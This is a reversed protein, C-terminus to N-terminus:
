KENALIVRIRGGESEPKDYYATYRYNGNIAEDLTIRMVNYGADIKYVLVSDSLKYQTDAVTITTHTLDSVSSYSRMEKIAEINGSSGIYIQVPIRSTVQERGSYQMSVGAVDITFDHAADTNSKKSTVIGYSYADGTVDNLIIDTIEGASNKAYYLVKSASINMSDLRQLYIRKYTSIDYLNSVVTDIIKVNESVKSSGITYNSSSVTGYLGGSGGTISTVSAEGNAFSVRCVKGLYYSADSKVEYENEVGDTGVLKVYYGSYEQGLNNTFTKTGYDTVYGIKTTETNSDGSVVGAIDGNRGLLITVTDGIKINGSSSLANFAEVSEINYEKGSIKVSSPADKSPSASEYIGTVKDTYALVMNLDSSYYVIDNVLIDSSSVKNGDRMIQTTSNVNFQQIWSSSTVKIPGEMSGKEYSVYDVVAGNMKVYLIDGMEMDAKVAGYTSQTTDRYCTTTDKVDIQKFTGNQYCIVANDLLSYIVYRDLNNTGASNVSTQILVAYEVSGNSNKFLKITDGKNAKEAITAYTYTQTKFYATTNENIDYIQNDLVLDKGIINTVTHTEVSQEQPTFAVFDDGNKVVIDGRRGVYDNDFNDNIEFTGATTYIKDTGLSSDEEHSAIITVGETIKCDFIGILKDSDSVANKLKTNLTNYVLRAVQGRTLPQGQFSDVYKTLELNQAMGIQGYPWSVGFDEDTYGLARLLMTLAEEYSVTDYPKFTGDIYGECLGASVAAQVYPAFWDNYKVDKFPSIKLGVAVTDKASSAAVVVKAFEARSVYDDLRYNGDGDGQMIKLGNLLSLVNEDTDWAAFSVLSSFVMAAAIVFAMLRKM